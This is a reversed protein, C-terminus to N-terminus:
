SCPPRCLCQGGHMESLVRLQKAHAQSKQEFVQGGPGRNLGGLPWILRQHVAALFRQSLERCNALASTYKQAVSEESGLAAGRAACPGTYSFSTRAQRGYNGQPNKVPSFPGSCTLDLAIERPFMFAARLTFWLPGGPLPPNRPHM